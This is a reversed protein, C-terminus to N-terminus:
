LVFSVINNKARTGVMRSPESIRVREVYERAQGSLGVQRCYDEFESESLM